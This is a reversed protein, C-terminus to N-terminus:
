FHSHRAAEPDVHFYQPDYLRGFRIIEEATFAHSGLPYPKGLEIEEFWQTMVRVGAHPRGPPAARRPQRAAADDGARRAPQPYRLRHHRHGTRPSPALAQPRLHHRYRWDHRRGDRAEEVQPRLLRARGDLRHPQPLCQRAAEAVAGSDALREGRPRWPALGE